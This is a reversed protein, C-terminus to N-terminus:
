LKELDLRGRFPMAAPGTMLVHDDAQRWEITLAGGDLL